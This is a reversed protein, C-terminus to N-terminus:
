HLFNGSIPAGMATNMLLAPMVLSPAMCLHARFVPALDDVGVEVGAKVHRTRHNFGHALFIRRM